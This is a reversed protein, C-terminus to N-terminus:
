RKHECWSLLIVGAITLLIGAIKPWDHTDGFWRWSVTAVIVMALSTMSAYAVSLQIRSLAAAYAVLALAFAAVGGNRGPETLASPLAAARKAHRPPERRAKVLVNALANLVGALLVLWSM